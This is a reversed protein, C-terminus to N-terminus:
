HFEAIIIIELGEFNQKIGRIEFSRNLYNILFNKPNKSKWAESVCYENLHLELNTPEIDIKFKKM